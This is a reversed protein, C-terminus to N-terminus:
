LASSSEVLKANVHMAAAAWHHTLTDVLAETLASWKGSETSGGFVESHLM